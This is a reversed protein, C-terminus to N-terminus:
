QYSVNNLERIIRGSSPKTLLDRVQRPSLSLAPKCKKSGMYERASKMLWKGEPYESAKDMDAMIILLRGKGVWCELALALRYNREVNDIPEVIPDVSSPLRDIILPYSNAIVPFWQWDTHSDTPFKDFLPHENDILLGLTGPSPKKKVNDCITKFMRYNWYDTQFLPGITTAAVSASDPYLIVRKGKELAQLATDISTTTVVKGSDRSADDKPFIWIDYSNKIGGNDANLSLTTKVPTEVYPIPITIAGADIVGKKGKADAFTSGNAFPLSWNVTSLDPSDPHYDVIKLPIEAIEGASFCYKPLEALIVRDSCSQKWEEHSTFGKPQMFADLIGVLATGQGPYDQIDLLQFGGMGPTRLNMEMDAKYLRTAWEGAAKFFRESKRLTGAKEAMAKFTTLNDPRLVGTYREIESFDPYFQYQGTEHGVVPVPSKSIANSFTMSTNPYTSNMIGGNEADAFSFSARAHSSFGEGGGVRCTVLFDEGDIHGNWGLYINSGYTALLGPMCDRAKDIFEKMISTDGWLENGIAFMTFSPHHSYAKLIATMDEDLFEILQKTDKDIEGWIPLEPQLYVGEEDAAAFCAEPPCWSHFRVHNIGYQKIKRFYGRWSEMDMPVHATMPWVCADHRGRLFTLDGNITFNTGATSFSRLGSSVSTQDLTMGSDDSLSITIEHIAPTWESWLIADHGMPLTFQFRGNSDSELAMSSSAGNDASASISLRGPSDPNVINGSIMFSKSSIDPTILIDSLHTRNKAKIYIDGIIGNWNTQTSETCAHSNNRVATPISEGNDITIEITHTGPSLLQSLDYEQPASISNRFGVNVGDVTVHSPRTREMLLSMNKGAMSEPISVTKSYVAKGTYTFKRSLQTTVDSPSVPIGIGNTDLTGPLSLVGNRINELSDPIDTLHYHWEGALDIVQAPSSAFANACFFLLSPITTHKLSIHM